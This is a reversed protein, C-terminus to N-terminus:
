LFLLPRGGFFLVHEKAAKEDTLELDVLFGRIDRQFVPHRGKEEDKTVAKISGVKSCLIVEFYCSYVPAGVKASDENEYPVFAFQHISQESYAAVYYPSSTLKTLMGELEKAEATKIAVEQDLQKLKLEVESLERKIVNLRALSELAKPSTAAGDITKIGYNLEAVQQELAATGIRGTNLSAEASVMQARARTAAEQTILGAQLEKDISQALVRNAKVVEATKADVGRKEGVLRGLKGTAVMDERKQVQLSQEYRGILDTLWEKQTVLAERSDKSGGLQIKLTDLAQRARFVEATMAVIRPSSKSMIVPAGWSSNVGYILVMGFYSAAALLVSGLLLVALWRYGKVFFKQFSTM